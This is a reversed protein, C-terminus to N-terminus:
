PQKTWVSSDGVPATTTYTGPTGNTPNAAYFKARLDGPFSSSANFGSSLITGQFTVSALSTCGSFAWNEITTVSNPITVSTIGTCRSFASQGISTVSDPITSTGTKGEPYQVLTTKGKNYLVGDQSSYATNAVDVNIATLGTCVSFASQGISTVSNSITVSTLSPFRDIYFDSSVINKATGPLKLSAIYEQGNKQLFAIDFVDGTMPSLDLNVYKKASNIEALVEAMKAKTFEGTVVMLVPDDKAGTGAAPMSSCGALTLALVMLTILPKNKKIM